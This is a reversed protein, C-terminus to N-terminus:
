NREKGEGVLVRHKKLEETYKDTSPDFYIYVNRPVDKTRQKQRYVHVYCWMFLMKDHQNVYIQKVRKRRRRSVCRMSCCSGKKKKREGHRNLMRNEWTWSPPFVSELRVLDYPVHWTWGPCVSWGFLGIAIPCPPISCSMVHCSMDHEMGDQGIAIPREQHGCM